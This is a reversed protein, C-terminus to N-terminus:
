LGLTRKFTDNGTWESVMIVSTNWRAVVGLYQVAYFKSPPFISSNGPIWWYKGLDFNEM